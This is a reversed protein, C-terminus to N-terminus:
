NPLFRGEWDTSGAGTHERHGFTRTVSCRAWKSCEHSSIMIDEHDISDSDLTQM